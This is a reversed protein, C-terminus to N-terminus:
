ILTVMFLLPWPPSLTYVGSVVCIIIDMPEVDIILGLVITNKYIVLSEQDYVHDEWIIIVIDHIMVPVHLKIILPPLPCAFGISLKDYILTILEIWQYM